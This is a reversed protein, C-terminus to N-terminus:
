WQVVGAIPRSNVRDGAKGRRTPCPRSKSKAACALGRGARAHRGMGCGDRQQLLGVHVFCLADKGGDQNRRQDEAATAAEDVPNVLSETVDVEPTQEPRVVTAKRVSETATSGM